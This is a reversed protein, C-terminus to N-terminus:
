RLLLIRFKKYGTDKFFIDSYSFALRLFILWWYWGCWLALEVSKYSKRKSPTSVVFLCVFSSLNQSLASICFMWSNICYFLPVKLSILIDIETIQNQNSHRWLSRFFRMSDKRRTLSMNYILSPKGMKTPWKAIKLSCGHAWSSKETCSKIEKVWIIM